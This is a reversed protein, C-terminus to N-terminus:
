SMMRRGSTLALLGSLYLELAARDAVEVDIDGLHLRRFAFEVQEHGDTPCALKSIPLQVLLGGCCNGTGNWAVQELRDKVFDVSHEGINADLKDRWAVASKATGSIL